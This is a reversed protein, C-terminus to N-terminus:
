AVRIRKKGGGLSAFLSLSRSGSPFPPPNYAQPHKLPPSAFIESSGPAPCDIGEPKGPMAANNSSPTRSM